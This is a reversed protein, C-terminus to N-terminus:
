IVFIFTRKVIQKQKEVLGLQSNWMNCFVMMVVITWVVYNHVWKRPKLKWSREKVCLKEYGNV